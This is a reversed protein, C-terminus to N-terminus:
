LPSYHDLNIKWQDHEKIWVLTFMVDSQVINEKYYMRLHSIGRQIAVDGYATIEINELKWDVTRGELGKWYNTINENGVVETKPGVMTANETYYDAIKALEGSNYAAEMNRNQTLIEDSITQACITTTFCAFILLTTITKM